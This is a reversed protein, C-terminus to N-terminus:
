DGCFNIEEDYSRCNIYFPFADIEDFLNTRLKRHHVEISLDLFSAKCPDANINNYNNKLEITISLASTM